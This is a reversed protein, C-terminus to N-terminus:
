HIVGNVLNVILRHRDTSQCRSGLLTTLIQREWVLRLHGWNETKLEKFNLLFTDFRILLITLEVPYTFRKKKMMLYANKM